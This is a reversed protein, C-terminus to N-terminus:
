NRVRMGKACQVEVLAGSGAPNDGEVDEIGVFYTRPPTNGSQPHARSLYAIVIGVATRAGGGIPKGAGRPCRIAQVIGGGEEPPVTDNRAYFFDITPRRRGGGRAQAGRAPVGTVPKAVVPEAVERAEGAGDPRALSMGAFAVTAVVAGGALVGGVRKRM